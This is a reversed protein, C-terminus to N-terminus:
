RSEPQGKRVLVVTVGVMAISVNHVIPVLLVHIKVQVDEPLTKAAANIRIAM